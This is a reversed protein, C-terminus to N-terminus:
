YVGVRRIFIDFGIATDNALTSAWDSITNGLYPRISFVQNNELSLMIGPLSGFNGINTIFRYQYTLQTGGTGNGTPWDFTGDNTFYIIGSFTDGVDVSCTITTGINTYADLHLTGGSDKRIQLFMKSYLRNDRLINEVATVRSSLSSVNTNLTSIASTNSSVASQLGTIEFENTQTLNNISSVTVGGVTVEAFSPSSTTKVSQNINNTLTTNITGISTTHGTVTTNLTSFNVGGIVAGSFTPTSTTKV